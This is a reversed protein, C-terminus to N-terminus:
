SEANLRGRAAPRRGPQSTARPPGLPFAAPVDAKSGALAIVREILLDLPVFLCTGPRGVDLDGPDDREDGTIWGAGGGIDRAAFRAGSAGDRPVRFRGQAMGAVRYSGPRGPLSELFLLSPEGAPLEAEGPVVTGHGDLEGGLLVVEAAAAHGLVWREVVLPVRRVLRGSPDREHRAEGPVALVVADALDVLEALSLLRVATAHGAAPLLALCLAPVCGALLNRPAACRKM